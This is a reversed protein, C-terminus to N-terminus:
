SLPYFHYEWARGGLLNTSQTKLKRASSGCLIFSLGHNEILWHVENLLDPVKQIEDIIVPSALREPRASLLEERLLFPSRTFRIMEDTNLLDYYVAERFHQKLWCSKGTQRAGWLFASQGKPLAMSLKRRYMNERFEKIILYDFLLVIHHHM